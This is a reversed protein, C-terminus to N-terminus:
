YKLMMLHSLLSLKAVLLGGGGGGGGGARLGEDRYPPLTELTVLM